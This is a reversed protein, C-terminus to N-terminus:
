ALTVVSVLGSSEKPTHHVAAVLGSETGSSTGLPTKQVAMSVSSVVGGVRELTRPTKRPM